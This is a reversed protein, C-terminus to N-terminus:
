PPPSINYAPKENGDYSKIDRESFYRGFMQYNGELGIKVDKWNWEAAEKVAMANSSIVM